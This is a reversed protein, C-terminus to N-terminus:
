VFTFFIICEYVYYDCHNVIVFKCVCYTVQFVVFLFWRSPLLTGVPLLEYLLAELPEIMDSRPSLIGFWIEQISDALRYSFVCCKQPCFLFIDSDM